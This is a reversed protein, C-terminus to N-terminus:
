SCARPARRPMIALRPRSRRSRSCSRPSRPWPRRSAAEARPPPRLAARTAPTETLIPAPPWCPGCTHAPQASEALPADCALARLDIQAGAFDGLVHKRVRGASVLFAGPLFFPDGVPFGVGHGRLLSRTARFWNRPGLLELFTGHRLGLARAISGDPDAFAPMDALGAAALFREAEAHTGRHLVAVRTGDRELDARRRSLEALDERCFTCGFHRLFVLMLPGRRSLEGLTPGLNTTSANLASAVDPGKAPAEDLPPNAPATTM